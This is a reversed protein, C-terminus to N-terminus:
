KAEFVRTPCEISPCPCPCKFLLKDFKKLINGFGASPCKDINCVELRTQTVFSACKPSFISLCSGTCLEKHKQCEKYMYEFDLLFVNTLAWVTPLWLRRERVSSNSGHFSIRKYDGLTVTVKEDEQITSYRM